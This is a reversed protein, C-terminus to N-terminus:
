RLIPSVEWRPEAEARGFLWGQGFDCGHLLLWDRQAATEVGEATVQLGLRHAMAITYSVVTQLRPDSAVGATLSRDLKLASLPWTAVAALNSFGTGFDDIAVRHRLKLYALKLKLLDIDPPLVEVVELWVREPKCGAERIAVELMEPFSPLNVTTPELNIAVAGHDWAAAAECAECMVIRCIQPELSLHRAFPLFFNPHRLRGKFPWRLLAEQAVAQGSRLDVIPQYHLVFAKQQIAELLEDKLQAAAIM